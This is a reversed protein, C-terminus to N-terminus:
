VLGPGSAASVAQHWSVEQGCSYLKVFLEIEERLPQDYQIVREHALFLCLGEM